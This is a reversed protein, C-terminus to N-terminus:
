RGGDLDLKISLFRLLDKLSLVGVLRHLHDVVLMRTNGTRNMHGLAHVADLDPPMTNEACLADAIEGVTATGWQERPIDGVQALSVCGILRGDQVVPLMKHHHRHVYGDVLEAITADPSVTVPDPQMFRAVPECELRRRMALNRYSMRAAYRLFMGIMFMWIGGILSGAGRFGMFALYAGFVMLLGGFGAGISSAIRTAWGMNKSWSWLAARLVRGGDLPFAPMLNLIALGWNVSSLYGVVGKVPLPWDLWNAVYAVGGFVLATLVSALPGAIAMLWEAKPSPPEREMEAVGGFIFLTIGRIPLGYRRAVLSHSMEHFIISAFLGIAGVVGMIWLTTLPLRYESPFVNTALTWTILFALVLWSLDLKVEFGLLRFLRMRHEFM